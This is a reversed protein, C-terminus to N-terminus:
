DDIIVIDVLGQSLGNNADYFKCSTKLYIRPKDGTRRKSELLRFEGSYRIPNIPSKFQSEFHTIYVDILQKRFFDSLDWHRLADVLGHQVSVAVMYYLMQNYSINFEVSNFHGTSEIYCSEQFGLDCILSIDNKNKSDGICVEASKLYKVKSFYPSLVRDLLIQDSGIRKKDDM